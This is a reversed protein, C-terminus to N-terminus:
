LGMATFCRDNIYAMAGGHTLFKVPSEGHFKVVWTNNVKRITWKM